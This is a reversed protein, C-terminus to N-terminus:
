SQALSVTPKRTKPRQPKALGPNRFVHLIGSRVLGALSFMITGVIPISATLFWAIKWFSSRDQAFIDSAVVLWIVFWLGFSIWLVVDSTNQPAVHILNIIINRM